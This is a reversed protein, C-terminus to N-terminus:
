INITEMLIWDLVFTMNPQLNNKYDQKKVGKQFNHWRKNTKEKDDKIMKIMKEEEKERTGVIWM